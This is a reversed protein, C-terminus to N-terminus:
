NAVVTPREAGYALVSDKRKEMTETGQGQGLGLEKIFIDAAREGVVFACGGTNAGVNEPPISLDALKLNKIGHVGCSADVVGKSERPAMKATGLSHWTTSVIERIKQEIAKDDEASYQIREKGKGIPGDAKEVVAAKSGTPFRPHSSALEGRFISMRRWMERQLKYAWIHKKLDIDNADKLYGVDFDIPANVDPSTIHIHGRSYPYATWNAMSVYEADDPLMSHDGYYSHHMLIHLSYNFATALHYWLYLAIIM